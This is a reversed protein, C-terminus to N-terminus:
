PVVVETTESRVTTAGTTYALEAEWTGSALEESTELLGCSTTTADAVGDTSVAVEVSDRRLTLTCTGGDQITGSVFGNAQVTGTGPDWQAFTLVVQLGSSTPDGAPDSPPGVVPPDTAVATPEPGISYSAFPTPTTTAAAGSPTADEGPRPLLLFAAAAVAAAAVLLVLVLRSTRRRPTPM